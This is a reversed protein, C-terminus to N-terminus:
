KSPMEFELDFFDILQLSINYDMHTVLQHQIDMLQQKYELGYSTFDGVLILSGIAHRKSIKEYQSIVQNLQKLGREVIITPNVKKNGLIKIEFILDPDKDQICLGDPVISKFEDIEISFERIITKGIKYQLYDITANQIIKIYNSLGITSKQTYLDSVFKQKTSVRKKTEESIQVESNTKILELQESAEKELKQKKEEETLRRLEYDKKDAEQKLLKDYIRQRAHWKICGWGAFLLGLILFLLPPGFNLLLNVLDVGEFGFRARNYTFILSSFIILGIGLSTMFKYFDDYVLEFFPKQANSM